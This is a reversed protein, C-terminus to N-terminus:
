FPPSSNELTPVKKFVPQRIKLFAILGKTKARMSAPVGGKLALAGSNPRKQKKLVIAL